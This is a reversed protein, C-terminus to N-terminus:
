DTTLGLPYVTITDKSINGITMEKDQLYTSFRFGIYIYVCLCLYTYLMFISKSSISFQKLLYEFGTLYCEYKFLLFYLLLYLLFGELQLKLDAKEM